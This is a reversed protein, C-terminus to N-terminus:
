PAAPCGHTYGLAELRRCEEPSLGPAGPAAVQRPRAAEILATYAARAATGEDGRLTGPDVEAPDAGLDYALGSGDAELIIKRDASRAALQPRTGWPDTIAYVVAAGTAGAAGQALAVRSEGMMGRDAPLGMLAALTPALDILGVPATVVGGAPLGPARLVLPVNIVEDWLADKHNFWYNHGFSEGHDATIVVITEPPVSALLRAIDADLAAIEGQYLSYIHAVDRPEPTRGGDRYPRLAADDGTLTGRYTADYRTDFPPPPLYPFHADFYHVFAVFPRSGRQQLWSLAAQTTQAAPRKMDAADINFRDDYVSFGRSLGCNVDVLTVGGVFAGTDYGKDRAIEALTPGSYISGSQAPLNGHAAPLVGTWMAWHTPCTEPFPSIAAEFRVGQAALGELAPLEARGGYLALASASVTDLSIFLLSRQPGPPAPLLDFTPTAFFAKRPGGPPPPGGPSGPAMPGKPPVPPAVPAPPPDSCALLALLPLALSRTM